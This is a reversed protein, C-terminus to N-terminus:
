YFGRFNVYIIIQKVVRYDPQWLKLVLIAKGKNLNGRRIELELNKFSIFCKNNSFEHLHTHM